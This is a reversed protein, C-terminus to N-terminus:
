SVYFFLDYLGIFFWNAGVVNKRIFHFVFCNEVAPYIFESLALSTAWIFWLKIDEGVHHEQYARVFSLSFAIFMNKTKGRCCSAQLLVPQHCLHCPKARKLAKTKFAHQQLQGPQFVGVCLHSNFAYCCMMVLSGCVHVGRGFRMTQAAYPALFDTRRSIRVCQVCTKNDDHM